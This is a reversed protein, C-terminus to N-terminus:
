VYRYAWKCLWDSIKLEPFVHHLRSLEYNNNYENRAVCSVIFLLYVIENIEGRSPITFYNNCVTIIYDSYHNLFLNRKVLQKRRQKKMKNPPLFSYLNAYREDFYEFLEIDINNDNSIFKDIRNILFLRYKIREEIDVVYDDDRWLYENILKMTQLLVNNGCYDRYNCWTMDLILWSPVNNYSSLYRLEDDELLWDEIFEKYTILPVNDIFINMLDEETEM